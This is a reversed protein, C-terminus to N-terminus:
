RRVEMPKKGPISLVLSRSRKPNEMLKGEKRFLSYSIIASQQPALSDLDFHYYEGDLDTRLTATGAPFPTSSLNTIRVAEPLFEISAPPTQLRLSLNVALMLIMAIAIAYLIWRASIVRILAEGLMPPFQHVVHSQKNDMIGELGTKMSASSRSATGSRLVPIAKWDIPAALLDSEWAVRVTSEPTSRALLEAQEATLLKPLIRCGILVLGLESKRGSLQIGFESMLSGMAM